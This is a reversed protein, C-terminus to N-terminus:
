VRLNPNLNGGKMGRKIANIVDTVCTQQGYDAYISDISADATM